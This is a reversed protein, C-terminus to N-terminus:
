RVVQLSAKFAGELSFADGSGTRTFMAGVTGGVESDVEGPTFADLVVEASTVTPLQSSSALSNSLRVSATDGDIYTGPGAPTPSVTVRLPKEEGTGQGRIYEIHLSNSQLFQTVEVSDFSMDYQSTISGELFNDPDECGGAILAAIIVPALALTRTLRM